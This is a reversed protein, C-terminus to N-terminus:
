SFIRKWWPKEKAVSLLKVQNELQKVRETAAGLQAALSINKEQMAQIMELFQVPTHSPLNATTEKAQPPDSSIEEAKTTTGVKSSPLEFIRYEEGFPGESLEAVIKGSKIYRRITRTSVGMQKAAEAITLGEHPM